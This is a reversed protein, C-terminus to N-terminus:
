QGPKDFETDGLKLNTSFISFSHFSRVTGHWILTYSLILLSIYKMQDKENYTKSKDRLHNLMCKESMTQVGLLGPANLHIDKFEENYWSFFFCQFVIYSLNTMNLECVEIISMILCFTILFTLFTLFKPHWKFVLPETPQAQTM